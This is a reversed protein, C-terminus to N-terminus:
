VKGEETVRVYYYVYAETSTVSYAACTYWGEDEETLIEITLNVVQINGKWHRRSSYNKSCCNDGGCLWFPRLLWGGGAVRGRYWRSHLILSNSWVSAYVMGCTLILRSGKKGEVVNEAKEPDAVRPTCLDGEVRVAQCSEKVSRGNCLASCSYDGQDGCTFSRFVLSQSDDCENRGTGNANM